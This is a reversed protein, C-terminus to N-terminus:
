KRYEIHGDGYIIIKPREPLVGKEQLFITTSAGSGNALPGMKGTSPLEWHQDDLYALKPTLFPRLEAITKPLDDQHTQAFQTLAPYADRLDGMRRKLDSVASARQFLNGLPSNAVDRGNPDPRDNRNFMIAIGIVLLAAIGAGVVLIKAKSTM